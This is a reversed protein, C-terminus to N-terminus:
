NGVVSDTDSLFIVLLDKTYELTQVVALIILARTSTEGYTLLDDLSMAALNTDLRLDTM